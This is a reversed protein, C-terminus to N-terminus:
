LYKVLDKIGKDDDHLYKEFEADTIIASKHQFYQNYYFKPLNTKAM